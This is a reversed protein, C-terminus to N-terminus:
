GPARRALEGARPASSSRGADHHRKLRAAAQRSPRRRRSQVPAIQPENSLRHLLRGLIMALSASVTMWGVVVVVALAAWEPM